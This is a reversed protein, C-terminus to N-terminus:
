VFSLMGHFYIIIIKVEDDDMIIMNNLMIMPLMLLNAAIDRAATFMDHDEKETLFSSEGPVPDFLTYSNLWFSCLWLIM